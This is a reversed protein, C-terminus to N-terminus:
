RLVLLTIKKNNSLLDIMSNAHNAVEISLFARLVADRNEIKDENM